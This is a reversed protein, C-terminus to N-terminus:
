TGYGDTVDMFSYFRKTSLWAVLDKVDETPFADGVTM